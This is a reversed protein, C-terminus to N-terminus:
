MQGTGCGVEAIRADCPIAQDLLRAFVSRDARMRLSQLTENPPFAPFPAADYFRRVIETAGDGPLRLTPIDDAAEFPMGCELCCWGPSLGGACSPCALLERARDM